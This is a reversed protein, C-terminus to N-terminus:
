GAGIRELAQRASKPRRSKSVSLMRMIERALSPQLHALRAADAGADMRTFLEALTAAGDAFPHQGTAAEYLTLGVLFLDTRADITDPKRIEFQEPAAYRRTLPAVNDTTTVDSLGPKLVVGLDILVARDLADFVINDPKIDRHVLGGAEGLADVADLLDEALELVSGASLAGSAIRQGLTGGPYYAERYAIYHSRGIQVVAPPVTISVLRPHHLASSIELERAARAAVSELARDNESVPVPEHYVKLVETSGDSDILFASKFGGNGLEMLPVLLDGFARILEEDSFPRENM